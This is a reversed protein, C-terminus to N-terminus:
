ISISIYFYEQICAQLGGVSVVTCIPLLRSHPSQSPGTHTRPSSWLLTLSPVCYPVSKFLEALWLGIFYPGVIVQECAEVLAVVAHILPVISYLSLDIQGPVGRPSGLDQMTVYELEEHLIFIKNGSANFCLADAQLSM